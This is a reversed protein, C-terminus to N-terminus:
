KTEFTSFPGLVGGILLRLSPNIWRYFLSPRIVMVRQKQNDHEYNVVDLGLLIFITASVVKLIFLKIHYQPIMNVAVTGLTSIRPFQSFMAHLIKGKQCDVAM